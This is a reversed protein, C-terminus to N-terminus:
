QMAMTINQMSFMLLMVGILFYIVFVYGVITAVGKYRDVIIQNKFQNVEKAYEILGDFSEWFSKSKEATKIIIYIQKPFGFSQFVKYLDDHKDIQKKLLLFFRRWGIPIDSKQLIDSITYIDLGGKQLSRMLIFIYPIDDYAKLSFFKYVFPPNNKHFYFFLAVVTIILVAVGITIPIVWDPHHIYFFTDPINLVDDIDIGKKIKAIEILEDVPKRMVPLLFHGIGILGIFFGIIPMISLTRVTKNFNNSLSRLKLISEIAEKTDKAYSLVLQESKNILGFKLFLDELKTNNKKVKHIIIALIKANKKEEISQQLEVAELLSNGLGMLARLSKLIVLSDEKSIKNQNLINFSM